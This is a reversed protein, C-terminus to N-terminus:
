HQGRKKRRRLCLRQEFTLNTDKNFIFKIYYIRNITESGM